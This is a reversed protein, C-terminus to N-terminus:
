YPKIRWFSVPVFSGTPERLAAPLRSVQLGSKPEMPNPLCPPFGKHLCIQPVVGVVVVVVVVVIVVVVVGAVVVIVVVFVVVVVVVVVAAAAAVVAVVVVVVVVVM